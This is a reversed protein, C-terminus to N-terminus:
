LGRPVQAGLSRWERHLQKLLDRKPLADYRMPRIQIDTDSRKYRVPVYQNIVQAFVLASGARRVPRQREPGVV